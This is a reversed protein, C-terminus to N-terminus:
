GKNKGGDVTKQLNKLNELKVSDPIDAPSIGKQKIFRKKNRAEDDHVRLHKGGHPNGSKLIAELEQFTIQEYELLAQAVLKLKNKNETLITRCTEYAKDTLAIVERDLREKEQDSLKEYEKVVNFKTTNAEGFMNQFVIGTALNTASKFDGSPGTTVTDPKNLCIKNYLEEAVYGGYATCLHVFYDEEYWDGDSHTFGTHGGSQGRPIVTIKNVPLFNEINKKNRKSKQFM